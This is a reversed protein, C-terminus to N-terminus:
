LRGVFRVAYGDEDLRGLPTDTVALSWAVQMGINRRFFWTAAVDYRADPGFGHDFNTYGLRVGLKRTPFVEGAFSYTWYRPLAFAFAFPAVIPAPSIVIYGGIPNGIGGILNPPVPAFRTDSHASTQVVRGSLSYPLKELRRVHEFGLGLDDVTNEIEFPLNACGSFGCLNISEHLTQSSRNATLDLTTNPGLYKGAVVGYADADIKENTSPSPPSINSKTYRGGAYWKSAPLVYRGAITYDDTTTVFESVASPAFLSAAVPVTQRDRSVSAGIQTAPDLFPALAYPSQTDDVPDLYYTADISSHDTDRYSEYSSQLTGGSLQWSFQDARVFAPACLLALVSVQVSLRYMAPRVM